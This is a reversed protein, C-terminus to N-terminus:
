EYEGHGSSCGLCPVTVGHGLLVHHDLIGDQHQVVVVVDNPGGGLPRRMLKGGLLRPGDQM